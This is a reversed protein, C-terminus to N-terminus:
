VEEMPVAECTYRVIKGNEIVDNTFHEALVAALTSDTSAVWTPTNMALAPLLGLVETAAEHLTSGGIHVVVNGASGEAPRPNDLIVVAGTLLQADDEPDLAAYHADGVLAHTDESVDLVPVSGPGYDPDSPRKGNGLKPLNLEPM